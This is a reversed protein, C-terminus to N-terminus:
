RKNIDPASITLVKKIKEAIGVSIIPLIGSSSRM